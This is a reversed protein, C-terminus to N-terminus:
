AVSASAESLARVRARTLPGLRLRDFLSELASEDIGRRAYADAALPVPADLAIASLQRSLRASAAHERLRYEREIEVHGHEAQAHVDGRAHHTISRGQAHVLVWLGRLASLYRYRWYGSLARGQGAARWSPRGAVGWRGWAGSRVM